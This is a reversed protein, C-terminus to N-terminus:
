LIQLLAVESFMINRPGYNYRSKLTFCVGQHVARVADYNETIVMLLCFVTFKVSYCYVVAADYRVTFRFIKDLLCYFM